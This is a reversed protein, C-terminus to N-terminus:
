TSPTPTPIPTIVLYRAQRRDMSMLYDDASAAGAAAGGGMAAFSAGAAALGARAAALPGSARGTPVDRGTPATTTPQEEMKDPSIPRARSIDGLSPDPAGGWRSSPAELEASPSSSPEVM